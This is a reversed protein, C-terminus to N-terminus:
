KLVALVDNENMLLLEDGGVKVETAAYSTFIVRDGVKVQFSGRNGDDLRKGTGLAIVRGETPKDKASDPIFIGGATKSEAEVRKVLIKEGLPVIKVAM